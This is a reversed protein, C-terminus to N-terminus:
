TQLAEKYNINFSEFVDNCKLIEYETEKIHVIYIGKVKEKLLKKYISLQICYHYYSCDDINKFIGLMKKGYSNIEIKQNTKFDIIYYNGELDKCILDVQGALFENYVIHETYVPILRKTIFFDNIFKIAIKSKLLFENLYENKINIFDFMLENNLLCFDNNVYDEFIKHIATGIECSKIAKDNWLKLLDSSCV